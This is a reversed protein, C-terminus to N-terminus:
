LLSLDPNHIKMQSHNSQVASRLKVHKISVTAVMFSINIYTQTQIYTTNGPVVSSSGVYVCLIYLPHPVYAHFTRSIHLPHVRQNWISKGAIQFGM